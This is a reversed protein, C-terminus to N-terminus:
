LREWNEWVFEFQYTLKHTKSLNNQIENMREKANEFLFDHFQVQINKFFGICDHVILSELLEYEGGEINIKILDVETINNAKLFDVISKLEITEKTEGELFISSSNDSLSIQLSEDKGALGFNFPQIKKNKLFKNEIIEFFDKIPEFVYINSNYKCLIEAAFEGKYGGVDFVISDANLEYDLRLTQDGKVAFWPQVRNHQLLDNPNIVKKKEKYNILIKFAKKLRSIM